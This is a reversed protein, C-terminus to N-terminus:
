KGLHAHQVMDDFIHLTLGDKKVQKTAYVRQDGCTRVPHTKFLRAQKDFVVKGTELCNQHVTLEDHSLKLSPELVGFQTTYVLVYRNAICVRAVPHTSQAGPLPYVIAHHYASSPYIFQTSFQIETPLTNSQVSCFELSINTQTEPQINQLSQLPKKRTNEQSLQYFLIPSFARHNQLKTHTKKRRINQEVLHQTEPPRLKLYPTKLVATSKISKTKVLSYRFILYAAIFSTGTLAWIFLLINECDRSIKM